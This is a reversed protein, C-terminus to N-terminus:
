PRAVQSPCNFFVEGDNGPIRDGAQEESMPEPEHLAGDAVLARLTAVDMVDSSSQDGTTDILSVEADRDWAVRVINVAWLASYPADDPDRPESGPFAAIVNNTDAKDGDSTLDSEVGRETVAGPLNSVLDCLPVTSGAGCDRFMVFIAAAPMRAAEPHEPDPAFMGDSVTFDYVHVRFQKHWGRGLPVELSPVGPQGVLDAGNGELVTGDLVLLCHVIVQATGSPEGHDIVLPEVRVRGALEAGEIGFVSKIDDPEYDDPVRVIRVRWYPSYGQEGPIRSFVPNGIPPSDIPCAADGERCFWFTDATFRPAFGSFWYATPEGDFFGNLRRVFRVGDEGVIGPWVTKAVEDIVDDIPGLDPEPGGVTDSCAAASLALAFAGAVPAAVAAKVIHSRHVVRIKQRFPGSIPAREDSYQLSRELLTPAPAM